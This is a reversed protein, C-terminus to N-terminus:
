LEFLSVGRRRYGREAAMADLALTPWDELFFTPDGDGACTKLYGQCAECVDLRLRAPGALELTGLRERAENGCHPCAAGAGWRTGCCGCALARAAGGAGAAPQVAMMPLAGCCPCHPRRWGADDRAAEFAARHPALALGLAVWGVFLLLSPQPPEPAGPEGLLWGVAAEAGGGPQLAADNAALGARLAAPLALTRVRASVARLAAAGAGRLAPGHSRSRLLAVGERREPAWADLAPLAAPALDLGAAADLVRARFHALPVLFPHAALWERRTQEM